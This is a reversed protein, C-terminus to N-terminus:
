PIKVGASDLLDGYGQRRAEELLLEEIRATDRRHQAQPGPQETLIGRYVTFEAPLDPIGAENRIQFGRYGLGGSPAHEVREERLVAQIGAKLRAKMEEELPWEPDPRGSFILLRVVVSQAQATM